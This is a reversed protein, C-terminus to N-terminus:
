EDLRAGCQACFKAGSRNSHGCNDCLVVYEEDISQDETSPTEDLNVIPTEEINEDPENYAASDSYSYNYENEMAAAAEEVARAVAKNEKSGGKSFKEGSYSIHFFDAIFDDRSAQEGGKFVCDTLGLKCQYMFPFFIWLWFIGKKGFGKAIDVLIKINFFINFIPILNLLFYWGSGYLGKCLSYTNYIPIFAEWGDRGLKKYVAWWGISYKPNIIVLMPVSLLAILAIIFVVAIGGGLLHSLAFRNLFLDGATELPNTGASRAVSSILENVGVDINM